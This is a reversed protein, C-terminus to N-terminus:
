DLTELRLFYNSIINKQNSTSSYKKISKFRSVSIMLESLCSCLKVSASIYKLFILDMYQVVEKKYYVPCYISNNVICKNVLKLIILLCYILNFINNLLSYRFFESSLHSKMNKNKITLISATCMIIGCVCIWPSIIIQTLFEFSYLIFGIDYSYIYFYDVFSTQNSLDLRRHCLDLIYSMNCTSLNYDFCISTYILEKYIRYFQMYFRM